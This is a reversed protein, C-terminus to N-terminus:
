KLDYLYELPENSKPYYERAGIVQFNQQNFRRIDNLNKEVKKDTRYIIELREADSMQVSYATMVDMLHGLNRVSEDLILSYHSAMAEKEAIELRNEKSLVAWAEQYERVIMAQKNAIDKVRHYQSLINKVKRLEDFLGAYQSRQKESWSAIDDLELKTLANEIVKQANQLWITQNQFRQIKLDIAKIVKKVGQKIIELVVALPVAEARQMPIMVLGACMAISCGLLKMKRGIM